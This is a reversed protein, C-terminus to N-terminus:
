DKISLCTNEGTLERLLSTFFDNSSLWHLNYLNTPESESLSVLEVMASDESSSWSHEMM